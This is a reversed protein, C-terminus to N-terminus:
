ILSSRIKGVLYGFKNKIYYSRMEPELISGLKVKYDVINFNEIIELMKKLNFSSTNLQVGRRLLFEIDFCDRIEKRDVFANIKNKMMEDLTAAKLIVQINSFKSFAIKEEYSCKKEKRIEIKLKKPYKESKLEVLITYFKIQSGTITYLKGLASILDKYYNKVNIKKILWFDLDISYRNLEHCLRLMTGGVFVLPELLKANKLKELVEIEFIEQRKLDQM